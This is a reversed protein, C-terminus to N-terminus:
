GRVKISSWTTTLKSSPEVATTGLAKALGNSMIDKINDKSLAVRLIAAEDIAGVLQQAM